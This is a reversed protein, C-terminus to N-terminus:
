FLIFILFLMFIGILIFAQWRKFEKPIFLIFGVLLLVPAISNMYLYPIAEKTITVPNILVSIGLILLTNIINSGVINGIMLNFQKQRIAQISTVLEPLSTGIAIITGAIILESIKFSQAIFVASNTVLKSGYLLAGLGLLTIGFVFTFSTIKALKNDVIDEYELRNKNEKTIKYLYFWYFFGFLLLILGEFEVIMKISSDFSFLAFIFVMFSVLVALSVQTLSNKSILIKKVFLSAGAFILLINFINSGLINGLALQSHGNISSIINIGFEPASTGLALVTLGIILKPIGFRKAIMSSGAVFYDAGFVILLLGLILLLISTFM